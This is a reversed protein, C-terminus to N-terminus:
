KGVVGAPHYHKVGDAEYLTTGLASRGLIVPKTDETAGCASCKVWSGGNEKDPKMTLKGCYWCKKTNKVM